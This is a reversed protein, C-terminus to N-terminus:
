VVPHAGALLCDRVAVDAADRWRYIKPGTLRIAPM